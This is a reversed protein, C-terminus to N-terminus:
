NSITPHLFHLASAEGGEAVEEEVEEKVMGEAVEEKMMGTSTSTAGEGKISPNELKNLLPKTVLTPSIRLQQMNQEIKSTSPDILRARLLKLRNVAHVKSCFGHWFTDPDPYGEPPELKSEFLEDPLGCHKRFSAASKPLGTTVLYHYIYRDLFSSGEGEAIEETVIETRSSTAIEGKISLNEIGRTNVLPNTVATSHHNNALSQITSASSAHTNHSPDLAVITFCFLFAFLLLFVILQIWILWPIRFSELTLEDGFDLM